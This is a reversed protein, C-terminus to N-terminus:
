WYRRRVQGFSTDQRLPLDCVFWHGGAHRVHEDYYDSDWAPRYLLTRGGITEFDAGGHGILRHRIPFLGIVGISPRAALAPDADLRHAFGSLAPLSILFTLYFPLRLLIFFAIWLSAKRMRRLKAIDVRSADAPFEGIRCLGRRAFWRPVFALLILCAGASLAILPVFVEGLVLISLVIATIQVLLAAPRLWPTPRCVARLYAERILRLRRRCNERFRRLGPASPMPSTTTPDALDVIRGCEPCKGSERELPRLPYGCGLCFAEDTVIAVTPALPKDTM